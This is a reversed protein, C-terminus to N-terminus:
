EAEQLNMATLNRADQQQRRNEAYVPLECLGDLLETQRQKTQGMLMEKFLSAEDASVGEIPQGETLNAVAGSVDNHGHEDVLTDIARMVGLMMVWQLVDREHVEVGTQKAVEHLVHSGRRYGPKEFIIGRRSLNETVEVSFSPKVKLDM